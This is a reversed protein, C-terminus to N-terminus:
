YILVNEWPILVNDMVLIADNEDFRSSLPYDYPSGTAGAVMEYSARSILKVGDADMPAVFMLAFDPNEGMVQASGFGIMNYHTLASNTAVVKAGSVIIGADTEKELKIYVDKVKDTPLHRDIPPNVIAHNF